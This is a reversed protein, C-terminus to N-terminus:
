LGSSMGHGQQTPAILPWKSLDTKFSVTVPDNMVAGLQYCVHFIIVQYISAWKCCVWYYPNCHFSRFWIKKICSPLVDFIDCHTKCAICMILSASIQGIMITFVSIRVSQNVNLQPPLPKNHFGVLSDVSICLHFQTHSKQLSLLDWFIQQKSYLVFFDM